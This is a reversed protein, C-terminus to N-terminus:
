PDLIQNNKLPGAARDKEARQLHMAARQLEERIVLRRVGEDVPVEATLRRAEERRAKEPASSHTSPFPYQNM